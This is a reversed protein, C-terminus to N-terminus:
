FYSLYNIRKYLPVQYVWRNHQQHSILLEYDNGEESENSQWSTWLFENRCEDHDHIDFVKNELLLKPGNQIKAINENIFQELFPMNEPFTIFNQGLLFKQDSIPSTRSTLETTAEIANYTTPQVTAETTITTDISPYNQYVSMRWSGGCLEYKNGM